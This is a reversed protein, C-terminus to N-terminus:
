KLNSLIFDLKKNTNLNKAYSDTVHVSPIALGCEMMKEIVPLNELSVKGTLLANLNNGNKYYDYVKKLGTLYLFDKTFGGGLHVRLTIQWAKHKPVKYQKSLV